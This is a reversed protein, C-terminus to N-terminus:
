SLLGLHQLRAQGYNLSAQVKQRVLKYCVGIPSLPCSCLQILDLLSIGSSLTHRTIMLWFLKTMMMRRQSQRHTSLLPSYLLWVQFWALCRQIVSSILTFMSISPYKMQRPVSKLRLMVSQSPAKMPSLQVMQLVMQLVMQRQKIKHLYLSSPVSMVLMTLSVEGILLVHRLQKQRPM